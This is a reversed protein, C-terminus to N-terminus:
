REGPNGRDDGRDAASRASFLLEAFIVIQHCNHSGAVIRATRDRDLGEGVM